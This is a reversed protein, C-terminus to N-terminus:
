SVNNPWNRLKGNPADARQPCPVAVLMATFVSQCCWGYVEQHYPFPSKLSLPSELKSVGDQIEPVGLHPQNEEYCFGPRTVEMEPQLLVSAGHLLEGHYWWSIGVGPSFSHAAEQKPPLGRGLIPALHTSAVCVSIDLVHKIKKTQFPYCHGHYKLNSQHQFLSFTVKDVMSFQFHFWWVLWEGDRGDSHLCVLVSSFFVAPHLAPCLRLDAVDSGNIWLPQRYYPMERPFSECSLWPKLAQTAM